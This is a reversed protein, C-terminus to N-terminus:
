FSKQFANSDIGNIFSELEDLFCDLQPVLEFFGVFREKQMQRRRQVFLLDASKCNQAQQPFLETAISVYQDIFSFLFSQFPEAMIM